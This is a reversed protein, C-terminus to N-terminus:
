LSHNEWYQSVKFLKARDFEKINSIAFGKKINSMSQTIKKTEKVGLFKEMAKVNNKDKIDLLFAIECISSFDFEKQNYEEIGQSLLIISVGKSRVERLMKQLIEGYKKERFLVHAEDILIVYRLSNVGDGIPADPMNMFVNYIYNIILFLSTFRVTAPLDGSLSLYINRNIFDSTNKLDELFVNHRCLGGLIETLSDQKDYKERLKEDIQQITPYTGTKQDEFAETTADILFSIQRAGLHSYKGIIDAFKDIGMKKNVENINDIFTLPNVPFPSQPVNVFEAKTKAFFAQYPTSDKLGKFDLYIFNVKDNSKDSIQCLLDLAFQTKGTGSNGAVAIHSNSYKSSDNLGLIIRDGGELRKGVELQILGSFSSKELMQNQNRVHGPIPEVYDLYRLGKSINENLFDFFTFAADKSIEDLAALGHDIHLKIYKPISEDAKYLGYYQCILALYFDRYEADFLIHDKYEKGKSDFNEADKLSFKKGLQLSYALAIRAIVNEPTSRESLRPTLRRIIEQSKESTKINIQM